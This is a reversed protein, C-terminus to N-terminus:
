ASERGASLGSSFSLSLSVSLLLIILSFVFKGKQGSETFAFAAHIYLTHKALSDNVIASYM